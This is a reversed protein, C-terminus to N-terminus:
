PPGGGGLHTRIKDALSVYKAVFAPSVDPTASAIATLLRDLRRRPTDGFFSPGLDVSTGPGPAWKEPDAAVKHLSVATSWETARMIHFRDHIAAVKIQDLKTPVAPPATLGFLPAVFGMTAKYYTNTWAGAAISSNITDYLSSMEQYSWILWKEMWAMAQRAAAKEPATMGGTLPDPVAPGVTMSGPTDFLRVLLTYTDSNKLADGISLFEVLREHAYAKDDTVLGPTGHSAEHLLIGGRAKKSKGGAFFSPCMTMMAGAGSGQNQAESGAECAAYKITGCQHNAAPKLRALQTKIDILNSKIKAADAAAWGAFFRTLLPSIAAGVPPGLATVAKAIMAEAETEADKFDTENSGACAAVAPAAAPPVSSAGGPRLIEVARMRRYDIRGKGSSPLPVKTIKAADHGKAVLEAEVANLRSNVVALNGAVGGEESAFGNLTLMDGAPVAFAAIKAKEAADLGAGSETFFVFEPFSAADEFKGRIQFDTIARRIAPPAGGAQQVVHTLEHALLRQGSPTQPAYRGSGFVIDRGVTYAEANVARASRAASAGRHVRVRSFDHGFRPEFFSRVSDPLEEGGEEHASVQAELENKSEEQTASATQRQALPTIALTKTRLIQEEDKGASACVPCAAKRQVAPEPMRMVEEAVRDAEQEHRDGPESVALKAQLPLRPPPRVPVRAFCHCGGPSPETLPVTKPQM